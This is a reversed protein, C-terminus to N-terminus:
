SAVGKAHAESRWGDTAKLFWEDDLMEIGPSVCHAGIKGPMYTLVPKHFRYEALKDYLENYDEGMWGYLTNFDADWDYALRHIQKMMVVEVGFQALEVLKGLETTVAKDTTWVGAVKNRFLDAAETARTGGFGKAGKRFSKELDPHRGRVTSHVWGNPDSTGPKVTSHVVVLDAGYEKEYKKTTEVFGDHWGYAIHLVDATKISTPEIDRIPADLIVALATGVEGAGIVLNSVM